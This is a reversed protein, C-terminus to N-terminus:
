RRSGTAQLKCLTKLILGIPACRFLPLYLHSYRTSPWTSCPLKFRAERGWRTSGLVRPLLLRGGETLLLYLVTVALMPSSFGLIERGVGRARRSATVGHLDGFTFWMAVLAVVASVWHAIAFAIFGARLSGTAGVATGVLAALLLPPVVAQLIRELVVRRRARVAAASLILVVNPILAVGVMRFGFGLDSMHFVGTALDGAAVVLAVGVLGASVIGTGFAIRLVRTVKAKDGAADYIAVYRVVAHDFGLYAVTRAIDFVSVGLAFVGLGAPGLTRSLVLEYLVRAGRGVLHAGIGQIGGRRLASVHGGAARDSNFSVDAGRKM